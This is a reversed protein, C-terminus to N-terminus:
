TTPPTTQAGKTLEQVLPVMGAAENVDMECLRKVIAGVSATAVQNLQQQHSQANGMSLAFHFASAEAITKLNEISLTELITDNVPM